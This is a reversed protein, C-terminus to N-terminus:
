LFFFFDYLNGILYDVVIYSLVNYYYKWVNGGIIVWVDLIYGYMFIVCVCVMDEVM